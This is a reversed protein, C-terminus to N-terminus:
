TLMFLAVVVAKDFLKSNAMYNAYLRQMARYAKNDAASCQFKLCNNNHFCTM